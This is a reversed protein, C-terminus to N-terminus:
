WIRSHKKLQDLYVPPHANERVKREDYRFFICELLALKLEKPLLSYGASYTLTIRESRPTLIQKFTSGSFTATTITTDGDVVAGITGVPGLPLYAGGNGNNQVVIIERQVFGINTLAECEQRCAIIMMEILNDDETVDIKCFNKVEALTVPETIVEDSGEVDTIDLVQNYSLGSGDNCDRRDFNNRYDAM